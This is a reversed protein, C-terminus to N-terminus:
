LHIYIFLEKNFPSWNIPIRRFGTDCIWGRKKVAETCSCFSLRNTKYNAIGALGLPQHNGDHKDCHGTEKLCITHCVPCAASCRALSSEKDHKMFTIRVQDTLKMRSPGALEAIVNKIEQVISAMEDDFNLSNDSAALERDAWNSLISECIPQLRKDDPNSLTKSLKTLKSSLIEEASSKEVATNFHSILKEQLKNKTENLNFSDSVIEEFIRWYHHSPFSINKMLIKSIEGRIDKVNEIIQKMIAPDPTIALCKAIQTAVMQKTDNDFPIGAMQATKLLDIEIRKKIQEAEFVGCNRTKQEVEEACFRLFGVEIAKRVENKLQEQVMQFDTLDKCSASFNLWMKERNEVSGFRDTINNEAEWKSQIITLQHKLYYKAFMYLHLADRHKKTVKNVEKHVKYLVRDVVSMSYKECNCLLEDISSKIKNAFYALTSKDDDGKIEENFWTTNGKGDTRSRKIVLCCKQLHDSLFLINQLAELLLTPMQGFMSSVQSSARAVNFLM